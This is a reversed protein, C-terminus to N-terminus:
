TEAAYALTVVRGRSSHGSLLIQWTDERISGPAVSTYVAVEAQSAHLEREGQVYKMGEPIHFGAAKLVNNFTGVTADFCVTGQCAMDGSLAFKFSVLIGAPQEMVNHRNDRKVLVFHM